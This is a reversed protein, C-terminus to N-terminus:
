RQQPHMMHAFMGDSEPDGADGYDPHLLSSACSIHWGPQRFLHLCQLQQPPVAMHLPAMSEGLYSATSSPCTYWAQSTAAKVWPKSCYCGEGRGISPFATSQGYTRAASLMGQTRTSIVSTDRAAATTGIPGPYPSGKASKGMQEGEKSSCSGATIVRCLLVPVPSIRLHATPPSWAPLFPGWWGWYLLCWVEEESLRQHNLCSLEPLTTKAFLQDLPM